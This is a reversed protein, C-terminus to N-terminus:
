VKGSQHPCVGGNRHKGLNCNMCLVQFGTPYNRKRLWQYFQSGGRSHEGRRRMEAGDNEVHDISLFMPETENCCVCRFGGYALFVEQRLIANLRKSKEAEAHRFALLEDSTMAAIADARRRVMRERYEDGLGARYNRSYQAHKARDKRVYEVMYARTCPECRWTRGSKSADFESGCGKCIVIRPKAKQRERYARQYDVQKRKACPDCFFRYVRHAPARQGCGKCDILDQSPIVM